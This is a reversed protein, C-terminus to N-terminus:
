RFVSAGSVREAAYISTSTSTIRALVTWPDSGGWADPRGTRPDSLMPLSVWCWITSADDGLGRPPVSLRCRVRFGTAALAEALSSKAKPM